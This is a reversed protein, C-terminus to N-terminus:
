QRQDGGPGALSALEPGASLAVMDVFAHDIFAVVVQVGSLRHQRAYHIARQSTSFNYGEAVNPVWDDPLKLYLESKVQQLLVNM